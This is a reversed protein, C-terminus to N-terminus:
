YLENKKKFKMADKKERKVSQHGVLVMSFNSREGWMSIIPNASIPVMFKLVSISTFAAYGRELSAVGLQTPLTSMTSTAFSLLCM